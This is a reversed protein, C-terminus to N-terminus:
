KKVAISALEIMTSSTCRNLRPLGIWAARAFELYLYTEQVM